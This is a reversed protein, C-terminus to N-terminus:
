GNRAALETANLENVINYLWGWWGDGSSEVKGFQCETGM